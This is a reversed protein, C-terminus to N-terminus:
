GAENMQQTLFRFAVEKATPIGTSQFAECVLLVKPRSKHRFANQKIKM